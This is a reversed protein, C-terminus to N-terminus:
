AGLEALGNIHLMHVDSKPQENVAHALSNLTLTCTEFSTSMAVIRNGKPNRFDTTIDGKKSVYSEPPPIM